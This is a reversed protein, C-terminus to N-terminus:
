RADEVRERDNSDVVFILGNTGQYYHRWLPRIKDQGGVHQEEAERLLEANRRKCDEEKQRAEEQLRRQREEEHATVASRMVMNGAPINPMKLVMEQRLREQMEENKLDDTITRLMKGEPLRILAEEMIISGSKMSVQLSQQDVNCASAVHSAYGQKLGEQLSQSLSDIDGGEGEFHASIPKSWKSM